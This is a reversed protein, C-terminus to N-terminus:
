KHTQLMVKRCQFNVNKSTLKFCIAAITLQKTHKKLNVVILVVIEQFNGWNTSTAALFGVLWLGGDSTSCINM